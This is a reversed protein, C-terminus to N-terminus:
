LASPYHTFPSFGAFCRDLIVEPTIELATFARFLDVIEPFKTRGFRAHALKRLREDFSHHRM